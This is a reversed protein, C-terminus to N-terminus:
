NDWKRDAEQGGGMRRKEIQRDRWSRDSEGHDTQSEM